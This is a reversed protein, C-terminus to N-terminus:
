GKYIWPSLIFRLLKRIQLNVSTAYFVCISLTYAWHWSFHYRCVGYVVLLLAASWVIEVKTYVSDDWIGDSEDNLTRLHYLAMYLGSIINCVALIEVALNGNGDSLLIKLGVAIGSGINTASAFVLIVLEELAGADRFLIYLIGFLLGIGYVILVSVLSPDCKVCESLFARFEDDTLLLLVVTMGMLFVSLANYEACYDFISIDRKRIASL